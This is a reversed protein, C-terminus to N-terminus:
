ANSASRFTEQDNEEDAVMHPASMTVPLKAENDFESAVDLGTVADLVPDKGYGPAFDM